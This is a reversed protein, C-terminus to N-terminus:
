AHVAAADAERDIGHEMRVELTYLRRPDWPPEFLEPNYTDLIGSAVVTQGALSRKVARGVRGFM